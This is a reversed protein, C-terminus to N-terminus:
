NEPAPTLMAPIKTEGTLIESGRRDLVDQCDRELHPRSTPQGRAATPDPPSISISAASEPRGLTSPPSNVKLVPYAKLHASSRLIPSHDEMVVPVTRTGGYWVPLKTRGHTKGLLLVALQAQVLLYYGKGNVVVNNHTLALRM